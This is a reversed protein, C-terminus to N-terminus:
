RVLVRGEINTLLVGVTIRGVDESPPRRLQKLSSIAEGGSINVPTRPLPIRPLGFAVDQMSGSRIPRFRGTADIRLAVTSAVVLLAPYLNAVIFVERTPGVNFLTM